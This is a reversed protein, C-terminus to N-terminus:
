AYRYLWSTQCDREDALERYKVMDGDIMAKVAKRTFHAERRRVASIQKKTPQAMINERLLNNDSTYDGRNSFAVEDAYFSNSFLKALIAFKTYHRVQLCFV